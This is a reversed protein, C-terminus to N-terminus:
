LNEEKEAKKNEDMDAELSSLRIIRERDEKTNRLKQAAAIVFGLTLFAGSPLIFLVAPSYWDGLIRFGLFSGAGIIERISAIIILALTFGLGMALGDVASPIVPNKSAFAEARALIICNVVILPIFLGLSGYLDYFYAKMLLEVATVFGSIIVIFAAIRVQKPIFRRLLSIFVNSFILVVTAAIGMGIANSVSTTVALTPCMGLLQVFTPNNDIVGGRIQNLFNSNKSM